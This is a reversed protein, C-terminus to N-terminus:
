DAVEVISDDIGVERLRGVEWIGPLFRVAGHRARPEDTHVLVAEQISVSGPGVMVFRGIMHHEGHAGSALVLRAQPHEGPACDGRRFLVVDGQRAVQQAVPIDRHNLGAVITAAIAEQNM